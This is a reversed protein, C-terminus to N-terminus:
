NVKSIDTGRTERAFLLSLVFCAASIAVPYYLGSYINGTAAVIAFATAPLFGGFWAASLHYPFSMATYRIRSPFMELLSTTSPAFTMAGFSLLVCLLLVIMPANISEPAAAGLPYKSEVLAANLESDFRKKQAAADPVDGSYGPILKQGVKIQAVSLSTDSERAYNLGLKSVADTVVDCSTTFKATGLPNFQVSCEAPNSVITIPAEVQARELAPNAFHTMAQFIPVTLVAALLYGGVYVKRRGIRDALTGFVVYLPITVVTAVILMYNATLNEVRLVKTLFFLSYFQGTYWIVAQAPLICLAGILILRVNKWTGFAESLPAKSARGEAKMRKFEPSEDLKLRIWLSVGLLLISVIFPVRWGWLLFADASLSLRLPIIIAVALLFGLAATLIVWATWSARKDPPAHEAVYIMAGGFEGGLALGQLMRMLIFAIPAAIGITAYAPLLGIVFTSIGMLMITILFTYKRGVLDGLRGFVIAGFPRLMFGAAFGLLTFIFGATPNVGSFFVKTIEGALLGILFFDYFEFVTGLSAAVIVKKDDRSM